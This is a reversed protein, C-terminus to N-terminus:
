QWRKKAVKYQIPYGRETFKFNREGSQTDSKGGSHRPYGRRQINSERGVISLTDIKYNEETCQTLYRGKERSNIM